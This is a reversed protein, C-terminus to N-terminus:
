KLGNIRMNTYQIIKAVKEECSSVYYPNSFRKIKKNSSDLIERVKKQQYNLQENM